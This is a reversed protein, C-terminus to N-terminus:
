AASRETRRVTLRHAPLAAVIGSAIFVVQLMARPLLPTSPAAPNDVGAAAVINDTRRQCLRAAVDVVM